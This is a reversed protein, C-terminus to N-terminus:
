VKISANVPSTRPLSPELKSLHYTSLVNIDEASVAYYSIDILNGHLISMNCLHLPLFINTAAQHFPHHLFEYVFLALNQCFGDEYAALVVLIRGLVCAV